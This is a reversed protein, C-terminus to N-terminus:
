YFVFEIIGALLELPGELSNFTHDFEYDNIAYM